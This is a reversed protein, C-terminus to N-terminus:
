LINRGHGLCELLMCFQNTIPRYPYSSSSKQVKFLLCMRDVKTRWLWRDVKTGSFSRHYYMIPKWITTQLLQNNNILWSRLLM